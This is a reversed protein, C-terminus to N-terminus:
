ARMWEPLGSAISARVAELLEERTAYSRPSLPTHFRVHATGPFIKMSGKKMM